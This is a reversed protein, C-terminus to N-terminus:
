VVSKRDECKLQQFILKKVEREISSKTKGLDTNSTLSAKKKRVLYNDQNKFNLSLVNNKKFRSQLPNRFMSLLHNLTKEMSEYMQM